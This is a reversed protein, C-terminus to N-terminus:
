QLCSYGCGYGNRATTYQKISGPMRVPLPPPHPTFRMLPMTTRLISLWEKDYSFEKPGEAMPFNVIQLFDRQPLCKDLALFRTTRGGQHRVLAPFKVHLHAAFYYDPKLTMLLETAVPSGLCQDQVQIFTSAVHLANTVQRKDSTHSREFYRPRTM